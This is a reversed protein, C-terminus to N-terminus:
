IVLKAKGNKQGADSNTETLKKSVFKANLFINGVKSYAM